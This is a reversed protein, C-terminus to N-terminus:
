WSSGATFGGVVPRILQDIGLEAYRFTNNYRDTRECFQSNIVASIVKGGRRYEVPMPKAWYLFQADQASLQKIM